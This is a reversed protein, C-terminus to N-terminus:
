FEELSFTEQVVVRLVLVKMLKREVFFFFLFLLLFPFAINSSGFPFAVDSSGFPFAIDSSGIINGAAKSYFSIEKDM